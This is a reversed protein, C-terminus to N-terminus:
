RHEIVMVAATGAELARFLHPIDGPYAAYDGPGLEVAADLPGVLARGTCLVVHERVGAQHPTTTVRAAGPEALVRYVDRRAGPPCPSLLAVRYPAEESRTYAAEEARIVHVDPLPPEVLRSFPVELALSLAWLTEVSPNGAGSELQSLTSKALRARRALEALSLGARERERRLSAAITTIIDAPESITPEETDGPARPRARRANATATKGNSKVFPEANNM